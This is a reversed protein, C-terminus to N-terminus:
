CCRGATGGGKSQLFWEFYDRPTPIPRGPHHLQLHRVYAQYDPMGAIRRLAQILTRILRPLDTRRRSPGVTEITRRDAREGPRREARARM